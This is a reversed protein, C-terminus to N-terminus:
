YRSKICGSAIFEIEEGVGTIANSQILEGSLSYTLLETGRAVHLLNRAVNVYIDEIEGHIQIDNVTQKTEEDYITINHEQAIYLYNLAENASACLSSFYL